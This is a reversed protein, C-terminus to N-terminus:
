RGAIVVDALAANNKPHIIPSSGVVVPIVIGPDVLQDVDVM